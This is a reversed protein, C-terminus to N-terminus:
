PIPAQSRVQTVTSGHPSWTVELVRNEQSHPPMVFRQLVGVAGYPARHTLFEELDSATLYTISLRAPQNDDDDSARHHPHHHNGPGKGSGLLGSYSGGVNNSSAAGSPGGAGGGGAGPLVLTIYQAVVAAHFEPTTTTPNSHPHVPSPPSSPWSGAGGRRGSGSVGLSSMMAGSSNLNDGGGGEVVHNYV